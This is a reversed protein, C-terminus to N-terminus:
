KQQASDFQLPYKQDYGRPTIMHGGSVFTQSNGVFVTTQMNAQARDLDELTTLVISQDARMASKVLGVPTRGRRHRLLIERASDLQWHRKKSRPNYLVIVFDAAGAAHLRKEILD